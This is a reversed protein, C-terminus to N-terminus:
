FQIGMGWRGSRNVILSILRKSSISTCKMGTADHPLRARLDHPIQGNRLLNEEFPSVKVEPWSSLVERTEIFVATKPDVKDLTIAQDISFQGLRTRRLASVCAGCGLREGITDAWSRIFSGKSCELSVKWLDRAGELVEVNWFKMDKSPAEFDIGARAKVYLKEGAVKKASYKPIKLNLLGQTELIIQRIVEESPIKESQRLIKGSIDLTDTVVGLKLEVEYAKDSAMVYDSLKTAPGVLAALLGTALPDLTGTHGVKPTNLKKKLIQVVDHSTLGAPKDILILGNM